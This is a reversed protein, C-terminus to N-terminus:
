ESELKFPIPVRITFNNGRLAEPPTPFPAAKTVMELAQQDLSDYGSSQIINKELLKGNGDLLLELIVEGQWGRTQAIRPYKKHKSILSWLTNGYGNKTAKLDEQNIKPTAVVPTPPAPALVPAPPAVIPSPAQTTVVATQPPTVEATPQTPEVIPSPKIIPKVIPKVVPKIVEPKIEEVPETVPEIAVPAEPAAPATISVELLAPKEAPPPKLRPIVIVLCVHLLVSCIIAWVLTSERKKNLRFGNNQLAHPMVSPPNLM